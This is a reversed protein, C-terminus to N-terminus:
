QNDTNNVTSAEPFGRQPQKGHERKLGYDRICLCACLHVISLVAFCSFVARLGNTYAHSIMSREEESLDLDKLAFASSTLKAILEPSFVSKLQSFLLSSLIAGSVTPKNSLRTVLALLHSSLWDIAYTGTTGTAGGFDRLFNRLGTLVARDQADSGAFLGVLVIAVFSLSCPLFQADALLVYRATPFM